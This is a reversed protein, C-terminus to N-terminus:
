TCVTFRDLDVVIRPDFVNFYLYEQPIVFVIVFVKAYMSFYKLYKENQIVIYTFSFCCMYQSM